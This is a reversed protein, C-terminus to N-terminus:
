NAIKLTWLIHVFGSQSVRAEFNGGGWIALRYIVMKTHM